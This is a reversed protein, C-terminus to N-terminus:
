LARYKAGGRMLKTDEAITPYVCINEFYHEKRPFM